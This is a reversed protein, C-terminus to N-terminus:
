DMHDLLTGIHNMEFFYIRDELITTNTEGKGYEELTEEIIDYLEEMEDDEHESTPMYLEMVLISIREAVLRIAIIRDNYVIKKVVSRMISKHVVIAACKEAREGGSYYV